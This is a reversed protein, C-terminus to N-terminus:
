ASTDEVFAEIEKREPCKEGGNRPISSRYHGHFGPLEMPDSATTYVSELEVTAILPLASAGQSPNEAGRM